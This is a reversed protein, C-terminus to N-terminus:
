RAFRRRFALLGLLGASLFLVNTGSDPVPANGARYTEGDYGVTVADIEMNGVYNAQTDGFIINIGNGNRPAGTGVYGPYPSGPDAFVIDDGLDSLNIQNGDKRIAHGNGVLSGTGSSFLWDIPNANNFEYLLWDQAGSLFDVGRFDGGLALIGFEVGNTVWLNIYPLKNAAGSVKNFDIGTLKNVQLGDFASTGYGVKQGSRPTQAAFGDGAGNEVIMLDGDWPALISGDHNRINFAEFDVASVSAVSLLAFAASVLKLTFRM